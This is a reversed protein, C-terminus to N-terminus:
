FQEKDDNADVDGTGEDPLPPINDLESQVTEQKGEYRGESAYGYAILLSGVTESDFADILAVIKDIDTRAVSGRLRYTRRDELTLPHNLKNAVKEEERATEANYQMLFTSLAAVFKERYRVERLLEQGLGYRVEYTRDRDQSRRRQARVTAQRIAYAIRQFGPDATITTLDRQEKTSNMTLINELGTITFQRPWSKADKEQERRSILYASYAATFKWLPRLTHGSLFDRYFRLLTYEESGEERKSNRINQIILIHERLLALANEAEVLTSVRPLWQPFNISSINMTAYASGMDKYFGVEFGQAVSFLQEMDSFDDEEQEGQLAYVRQEVFAEAFRLAAMVDLKVVTSSWCVTRFSRMIDELTTLEVEKPQVVYTKRDKSGQVIYPASADMFGVFKLLELLWFSDQNGESLVSSKTRNAGKGTSPNFMQLATSYVDKKLGHEKALNQCSAVAAVIDNNATGFLRLLVAIHERQLQELADWRQILENFTGASKMQNISQYHGLATDPKDLTAIIAARDPAGRLERLKVYYAKSIEQQKVYDFENGGSVNSASQGEKPKTRLSRLLAFPSLQQVDSDTIATPVTITYHSGDDRIIIGRGPKNSRRLIEKTLNAFGIALLVDASTGNIKDVYFRQGDNM